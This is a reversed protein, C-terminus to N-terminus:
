CWSIRWSNRVTTVPNINATIRSQHDGPPYTIKTLSFYLRYKKIFNLQSLHCHCFCITGLLIGVRGGWGRKDQHSVQGDCFETLEDWCNPPVWKYVQTSLSVIWLTRDLLGVCHRWTSNSGTCRSGSHLTWPCIDSCM